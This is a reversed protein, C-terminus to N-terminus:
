SKRLAVFVRGGASWEEAVMLDLNAAVRGLTRCGFRGWLLPSSTAGESTLVVQHVEDRDPEVDVECIVLGGAGVLDSCRRLLLGLDGGMGINSDVLLATGWRGEAPLRDNVHRHLALAGRSMSVGVAAASMDVGLASRGSRNLAVVMRGPGCGLDVVPPECRSVVMLDVDDADRSWRAVDLDLADVDSCVQTTAGTFARDFLQEATQEQRAQLLQRHRQSFLLWPYRAAVHEADGPVDVDRLPPLLKVSLGLSTLRALQAAGTRDTSMPIGDFVRRPDGDRLGVAWFGGDESLGLVADAGEWEMDLLGATVQPTDMGILLVPATGDELLLAAFAATLRDNLSGSPQALVVFELNRPHPDGEWALVKRSARSERVAHLTDEISCAALEAAEEPTFVSQLRTKARGPLPEKALVVLTDVRDVPTPATM